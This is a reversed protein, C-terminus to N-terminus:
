TRFKGVPIKFYAQGNAEPPPLAGGRMNFQVAPYLLKPATLTADRGQRFEVYERESIGDHIQVNNDREDAVTTQGRFETRTATGYDHCLYLVTASPLAFIRQISRYLFRANGGPFDARATGYDPMFLTDGVFATAGIVYTVCAPTHGPTHMVDVALSGIMFQDGDAFLRDFQSGDRAFEPEANFVRGFMRQVCNIQDGIAIQGGVRTQLYRAASLHDAHVHTELIWDVTLREREVYDLILDASDTSTRGSAPEYDLVSDIIAARRSQLDSVVYSYSFTSPDFFSEVTPGM